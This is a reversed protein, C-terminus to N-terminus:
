EEIFVVAHILILWRRCVIFGLMSNSLRLPIMSNSKSYSHFIVRQQEWELM